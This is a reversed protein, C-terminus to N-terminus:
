ITIRESNLLSFLLRSIVLISSRLASALQPQALPAAHRQLGQVQLFQLQQDLAGETSARPNMGTSSPESFVRAKRIAETSAAGGAAACDICIGPMVIGFGALGLATGILDFGAGAFGAESSSVTEDGDATGIGIGIGEPAAGIGMGIGSTPGAGIAPMFM